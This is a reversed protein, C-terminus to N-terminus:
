ENLFTESELFLYKFEGQSHVRRKLVNEQKIELNFIDMRDAEFPEQSLRKLM